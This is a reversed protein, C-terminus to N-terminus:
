DEMAQNAQEFVWAPLRVTALRPSGIEADVFKSFLVARTQVAHFETWPILLPPHGFRFPAPVSIGLGGPTITLVTCFGYSAPLGPVRTMSVSQFRRAEGEPMTTVRFKGALARWGGLWAALYMVGTWLGAFYLSFLLILLENM